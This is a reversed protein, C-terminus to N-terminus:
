ELTVTVTRATGDWAIQSDEIGLANFVARLPLFTRSDKIVATTDIEVSEEGVTIVNSDITIKVETGDEKIITVVKAEADWLINEDAISLANAVARVPLMTRSNADIYPAVDTEYEVGAVTYVLSDITFVITNVAEAEKGTGTLRDPLKGSEKYEKYEADTLYVAVFETRQNIAIETPDVIKTTGEKVWGVFNYGDDVKLEPTSSVKKGSGVYVSQNQKNGEAIVGNEGSNFIVQMRATGGSGTSFSMTGGSTDVTAAMAPVSIMSFVLALALIKKLKM